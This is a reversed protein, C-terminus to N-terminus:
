LYRRQLERFVSQGYVVQELTKVIEACDLLRVHLM